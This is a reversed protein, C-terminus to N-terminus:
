RKANKPKALKIRLALLLVIVIALVIIYYIEGDLGKAGNGAPTNITNSTQSTLSSTSESSAHQINQSITTSQKTANTTSNSPTINSKGYVIIKLVAVNQSPDDGTANLGITYNGVRAAGSANITMVGSFTPESSARSLTIYIGNSSLESQNIINITTGWTLGTKLIVNYTLYAVSNPTLSISNQSVYVMSTGYGNQAASSLPLFVAALMILSIAAYNFNRLPM